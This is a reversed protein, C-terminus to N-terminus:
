AENLVGQLKEFTPQPQRAGSPSASASALSLASSQQKIQQKKLTEKQKDLKIQKKLTKMKQAQLLLYDNTVRFRSLSNHLNDWIDILASDFMINLKEFLDDENKIQMFEDDYASADLDLHSFLPVGLPMSIEGNKINNENNDSEGDNDDGDDKKVNEHVFQYIKRMFLEIQNASTAGINIADYGSACIYKNFLYVGFEYKKRSNSFDKNSENYITMGEGFPLNYWPLHKLIRVVSEIHKANASRSYNLALSVMASPTSGYTGSSSGPTGSATITSSQSIQSPENNMEADSDMWEVSGLEDSSQRSLRSLDSPDSPDFMMRPVINAALKGQMNDIVLAHKLDVEKNNNEEDDNVTPSGTPSISDVKVQLQLSVLSEPQWEKIGTTLHNNQEKPKIQKNEMNEENQKHKKDNHKFDVTNKDKNKNKDKDKDKDKNDKRARNKSKRLKRKRKMEFEVNLLKISKPVISNRNKSIEDHIENWYKYQWLEILFLLNELSFEQSLHAM